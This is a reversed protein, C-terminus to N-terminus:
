ENKPKASTREQELMRDVEIWLNQWAARETESLKMLAGPDRVGALRFDLKLVELCVRRPLQNSTGEGGPTSWAALEAALWTRALTSFEARDKDSSKDADIGQGAGAWAATCAADLRRPRFAQ